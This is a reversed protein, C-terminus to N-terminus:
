APADLALSCREVKSGPTSLPPTPSDVSSDVSSHRGGGIVAFRSREAPAKVEPKGRCVRLRGLTVLLRSLEAEFDRQDPPM